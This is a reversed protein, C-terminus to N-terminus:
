KQARAETTIQTVVANYKDMVASVLRVTADVDPKAPMLAKDIQIMNREIDTYSEESRAKILNEISDWNDDFKSFSKRAKDFNGSRLAPTVERLSARVTRLRAVDDYLPSLPAGKQCMAIAEDYKAIMQTVDNAIAAADPMPGALEKTIQSQWHQEIEGYMARDRTNVYVEIGNWASDYDDFAAKAGAIDGKKLANQTSVLFARPGKVATVEFREQAYAAGVGVSLLLVLLSALWIFKRM